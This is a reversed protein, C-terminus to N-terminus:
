DAPGLSHSLMELDIVLSVPNGGSDRGIWTPYVGDGMGCGFVLIGGTLTADEIIEAEGVADLTTNLAPQDDRQLHRLFGLDSADLLCGLGSDVGFGPLGDADDAPIEEGPRVGVEWRAVEADGFDARVATPARLPPPVLPDPSEDWHVVSLAVRWKGPPVVVTLPETEDADDDVWGTPDRVVLRGSSVVLEGVQVVDLRSIRGDDWRHRAGHLFLGRVDPEPLVM